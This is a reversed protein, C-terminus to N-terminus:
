WMWIFSAVMTNIDCFTMHTNTFMLAFVYEQFIDIAVAVSNILYIAWFSISLLFCRPKRLSWSSFFPSLSFFSESVDTLASWTLILAGDEDDDDDTRSMMEGSASDLTLSVKFEYLFALGNAWPTTSFRKTSPKKPLFKWYLM